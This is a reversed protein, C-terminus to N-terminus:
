KSQDKIQSLPAETFAKEQEAVELHALEATM